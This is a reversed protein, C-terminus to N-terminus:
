VDVKELTVGVRYRNFEVTDAVAAAAYGLDEPVSDVLVIGRVEQGKTSLHKRVWGMLQLMEGVLEKERNPEAVMVVVWGASQDRALLDIKGVSTEFRGGIARGGDETHITLGEEILEPHAILLDRIGDPSLDFSPAGGGPKPAPAKAPPPKQVAPAPRPQPKKPEVKTEAM